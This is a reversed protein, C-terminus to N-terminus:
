RLLIMKKADRFPGVELKFFYIGTAVRVGGDNCGDWTVSYRGFSQPRNVLTRVIQGMVDYVVLRVPINSLIAGNYEAPLSYHIKTETNFPNPFCQDLAFRNEEEM